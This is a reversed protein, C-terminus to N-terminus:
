VRQKIIIIIIIIIIIMMTMEICMIRVKEFRQGERM